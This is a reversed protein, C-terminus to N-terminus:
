LDNATAKMRVAQAFADDFQDKLGQRLKDITAEDTFALAGALGNAAATIVGSLQAFFAQAAEHAPLSSAPDFLVAQDVVHRQVALRTDEALKTFNEPAIVM